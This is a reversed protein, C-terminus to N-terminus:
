GFIMQINRNKGCATNEGAAFGHSHDRFHTSITNLDGRAKRNALFAAQGIRYLGGVQISLFIINFDIMQRCRAVEHSHELRRRGDLHAYRGVALGVTVHEVFAFARIQILPPVHHRLFDHGLGFLHLAAQARVHLEVVNPGAARLSIAQLFGRHLQGITLPIERAGLFDIVIVEVARAILDLQRIRRLKRLLCLPRLDIPKRRKKSQFKPRFKIFQPRPPDGRMCEDHVQDPRSRLLWLSTFTTGLILSAVEKEQREIENNEFM